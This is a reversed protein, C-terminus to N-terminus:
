LKVLLKTKELETGKEGRVTLNGTLGEELDEIERGYTSIATVVFPYLMVPKATEHLTRYVSDREIVVSYSRGVASYVVDGITITQWARGRVVWQSDPLASVDVVEFVDRM